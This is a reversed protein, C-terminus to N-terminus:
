PPSCRPWTPRPPRQPRGKWTNKPFLSVEDLWLTGPSSVALACPPRQLHDGAGDAHLPVAEVVPRDQPGAEGRFRIGSHDELTAVLPGRLDKSCRAYFSLEYAAGKVLALGHFGDNAVGAQFEGANNVDLRLSTPNRPNLPESSDLAM